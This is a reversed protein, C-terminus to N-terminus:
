EEEAHDTAAVRVDHEAEDLGDQVLQEGLNEPQLDPERVAQVIPQDASAPYHMLVEDNEPTLGHRQGGLEAAARELDGDTYADRGDMQALEAARLEIETESAEGLGRAGPKLRDPLDAHPEM